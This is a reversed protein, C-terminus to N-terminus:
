NSSLASNLTELGEASILIITGTDRALGRDIFNHEKILTSIYGSTRDLKRSVERITYVKDLYNDAM